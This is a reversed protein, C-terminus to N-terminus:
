ENLTLVRWVAQQILITLLDLMAFDITAWIMLQLVQIARHEHPYRLPLLVSKVHAAVSFVNNLLRAKGCTATVHM